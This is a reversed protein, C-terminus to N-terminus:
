DYETQAQTIELVVRGGQLIRITGGYVFFRELGGARSRSLDASLTVDPHSREVLGDLVVHENYINVAQNGYDFVLSQIVGKDKESDAAAFDEECNQPHYTPSLDIQATRKISDHTIRVIYKQSPDFGLFPALVKADLPTCGIRLQDPHECATLFSLCVGALLLLSKLRMNFGGTPRVIICQAIGPLRRDGNGTDGFPM